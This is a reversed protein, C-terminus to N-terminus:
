KAACWAQLHHKAIYNALGAAMLRHGLPTWHPDYKFYLPESGKYKKFEALAEYLDIESNASHQRITQQTTNSTQEKEDMFMYRGPIWDTSNVQHAWPYTTLLFKSQISDARRKIHSISEFIDQWQASRDIDGELTHAFHERGFENVVRRVSIEKHDMARTLYVLAIRTIYLNRTTWSLFQEYLSDQGIQPVAVITGDKSRVAQQRYAQEQILDSNDLNLIVLDPSFSALDRDFQIYSLIPAYSDVGGNLVEVTGGGCASLSEQLSEEVLVAFTENEEVGKGMTFSDGLMLIRKTDAPKEMTTERGRLGLKNARQIYSFDRQRLEAHSDPVLAHHRYQDPVLPPSLPVILLWGAMFDITLYAVVTVSFAMLLNRVLERHRTKSLYYMVALVFILSGLISTGAIAAPGFEGEIIVQQYLFGALALGTLVTLLLLVIRM